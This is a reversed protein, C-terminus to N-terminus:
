KKRHYQGDFITTWTEGGDSSQEWHQRVYDETMQYFTLKYDLEVGGQGFGKGIYKMAKAEADYIGSFEIPIGGSGIWKQHWQQDLVSYYNLSKGTYGSAGTWNELIVCDGVTLEIVSNGVAVDNPNKVEWEGIWFDFQRYEPQTKCRSQQAQQALITSTAIFITVLFLGLIKKFM